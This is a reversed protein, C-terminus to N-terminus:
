LCIMCTLLKSCSGERVLASVVGDMDAFRFVNGALSAVQLALNCVRVRREGTVTTYLLASQIHAYERESLAHNHGFTVCISKDADITGFLMDDAASESFNGYQKLIRLGTM